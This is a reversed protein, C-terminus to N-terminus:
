DRSQDQEVCVTGRTVTWRSSASFEVEVDFKFVSSYPDLLATAESSLSVAITTGAASTVVGDTDQDLVINDSGDRITFNITEDTVDKTAIWVLKNNAIGDYADGHIINLVESSPQPSYVTTIPTIAAIIAAQNSLTADGGEVNVFESANIIEGDTGAFTTDYHAIGYGTVDDIIILRYSGLPVATDFTITYIGTGTVGLIGHEFISAATQEILLTTENLLVASLARSPAAAAIVFQAM